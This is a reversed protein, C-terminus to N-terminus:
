FAQIHESPETAQNVYQAPFYVFEARTSSVESAKAEASGQSRVQDVNVWSAAAIAALVLIIAVPKMRRRLNRKPIFSIVNRNRTLHSPVHSQTPM